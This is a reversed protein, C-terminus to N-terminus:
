RRLGMTATGHSSICCPLLCNTGIGLPLLVDAERFLHQLSVWLFLFVFYKISLNLQYYKREKFPEM